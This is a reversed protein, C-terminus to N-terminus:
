AATIHEDWTSTYSLVPQFQIENLATYKCFTTKELGDPKSVEDDLQLALNL